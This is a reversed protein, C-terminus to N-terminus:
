LILLDDALGVALVSLASSPLHNNVLHFGVVFHLALASLVLHEIAHLPHGLLLLFEDILLPSGLLALVDYDIVALQSFSAVVLPSLDISLSCLPSLFLHELGHALLDLPFHLCKFLSIFLHANKFLLGVTLSPVLKSSLQKISDKFNGVFCENVLLLRISILYICAVPM